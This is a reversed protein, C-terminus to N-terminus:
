NDFNISKAKNKIDNMLKKKEKLSKQLHEINSETDKVKKSWQSYKDEIQLAKIDEKLKNQSETLEVKELDKGQKNLSDLNEEQREIAREIEKKENKYSNFVEKIAKAGKLTSINTHLADPTETILTRTLNNRREDFELKEEM